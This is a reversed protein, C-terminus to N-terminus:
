NVIFFYYGYVKKVELKDEHAVCPSPTNWCHGKTRFLELGSDLKESTFKKEEVAFYPFNDYKYIDTRNFENNIRVINKTNFLIITLLILYKFKQKFNKINSFYNVILAFPISLTLFIIPYGGYRLQPHKSFWIAFIFIIFIYFFIMKKNILFKKKYKSNKFLLFIVIYVILLVLLQDSVKGMFYNQVWRPFWNLGQIYILPDEVRFNPGAGAKSWQELWIALDKYQNADSAWFLYDGFCTLSIPSILCGTSIFHQLYFFFLFIITFLFVKSFILYKFNKINDKLFLVTLILLFYPLFYTKLSICYFFLPFLVLIHDKTLSNKNFSFHQFLKIVLVVILLQGAKDTGYEALRNFSLNFFM